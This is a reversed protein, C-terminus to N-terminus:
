RCSHVEAAVGPQDRMIRQADLPGRGVPTPAAHCCSVRCISYLTPAAHCSSAPSHQAPAPGGSRCLRHPALPLLVAQAISALSDLMAGLGFDVDQSSLEVDKVQPLWEPRM